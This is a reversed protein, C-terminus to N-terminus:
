SAVAGRSRPTRSISLKEAISVEYLREAGSLSGDLIMNRLEMLAKLSQPRANIPMMTM